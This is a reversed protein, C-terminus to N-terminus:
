PCIRKWGDLSYFHITYNGLSCSCQNESKCSLDNLEGPCLIAIVALGGSIEAMERLRKLEYGKLRPIGTSSKVQIFWKASDHSAIIDTPGKSGKSLQDINWGRLKLYVTIIYEAERGFKSFSYPPSQM